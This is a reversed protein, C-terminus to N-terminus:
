LTSTCAIIWRKFTLVLHNNVKHPVPISRESSWMLSTSFDEGEQTYVHVSSREWVQRALFFWCGRWTRGLCGGGVTGGVVCGLLGELSYCYLAYDGVTKGDPIRSGQSWRPRERGGGEVLEADLVLSQRGGSYGAIKWDEWPNKFAGVMQCFSGTGDGGSNTLRFIWCVRARWCEAPSILVKWCNGDYMWWLM